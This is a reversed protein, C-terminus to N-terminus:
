NSYLYTYVLLIYMYKHVLLIYMYTHVLLIYMYTHVLLIYLLPTSTRNPNFIHIYTHIYTHIYRYIQFATGGWNRFSGLSIHPGQKLEGFFCLSYNYGSFVNHVCQGLAVERYTHIYTHIVYTHNKFLLHVCQLMIYTHIYSLTFVIGPM